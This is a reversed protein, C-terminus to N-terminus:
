AWNLGARESARGWSGTLPTPAANQLCRISRGATSGVLDCFLVTMRRHQANLGLTKAEEDRPSARGEDLLPNLAGIAALLQKRHRPAIGMRKLEGDDLWELDKPEIARDRFLSAYQSLKLGRLWTDIDM